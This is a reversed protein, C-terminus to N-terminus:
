TGFRLEFRVAAVSGWVVCFQSEWKIFQVSRARHEEGEQVGGVGIDKWVV